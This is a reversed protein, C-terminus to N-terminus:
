RVVVLKLRMETPHITCVFRYTGTKDLRKALNVGDKTTAPSAIPDGPGRAKVIHHRAAGVWDFRVTTGRKVTKKSPRLFNDGVKITAVPAAAAVSGVAAVAALALAAVAIVRMRNVAIARM